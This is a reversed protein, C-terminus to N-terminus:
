KVTKGCLIEIFAKLNDNMVRNKRILIGTPRKFKENSFPIAKLTGNAVENQITTQPMISVGANIEVVRKITEVNDFEMVPKVAVNYRLLLQDIWNRTPLNRAFAIFQQYQMMCIDISSKKAFQHQPGCVFVLPEAVFDFVQIDASTRPVAVLGVDIKGLLLRRYIEDANLYEVDLHVNPYLAIFRKIYEQLSHMGISYIAAISIKSKASNKLYNLSSQFNEFRTIIDKCSNYFLEGASTLGFSKKHRDILQTNFARELQGLQQSVASQSIMNKEAARSFSKLEALDCFIQLAEIQM